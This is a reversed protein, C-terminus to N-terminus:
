VQLRETVLLLLGWLNLFGKCHLPKLHSRQVFPLEKTDLFVKKSIKFLWMHIFIKIFIFALDLPGVFSRSMKKLLIGMLKLRCDAMSQLVTINEQDIQPM